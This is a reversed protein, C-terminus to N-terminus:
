RKPKEAKPPDPISSYYDFFHRMIFKVTPKNVHYNERGDSFFSRGSLPQYITAMEYAPFYFVNEHRSAFEDAVARLTSKSNCSASIVDLDTRFTAWLNVPSVTMLLKCAPNYRMM